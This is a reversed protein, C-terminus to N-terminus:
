QKKMYAYAVGMGVLLIFWPSKYLPKEEEKKEKPLPMPELARSGGSPPVVVTPPPQIIIPSQSPPTFAVNVTTPAATTSSPTTASATPVSGDSSAAPSPAPTPAVPREWPRWGAGSSDPYLTAAGNGPLGTDPTVPKLRCSGRINPYKKELTMYALYATRLARALDASVAQERVVSSFDREAFGLNKAKRYPNCQDKIAAIVERAKAVSFIRGKDADILACNANIKQELEKARALQGSCPVQDDIAAGLGGSLVTSYAEGPVQTPRSRMQQFTTPERNYSITPGMFETRLPLMGPVTTIGVVCEGFDNRHYGTPCPLSKQREMEALGQLTGAKQHRAREAPTMPNNTAPRVDRSARARALGLQNHAEQYRSFSNQEAISQRQLRVLDAVSAM